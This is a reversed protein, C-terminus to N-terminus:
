IFRHGFWINERATRQLSLETEYLESGQPAASVALKILKASQLLHLDGMTNGSCLLPAIGETIQLLRKPKGERWTIMGKIEDSVIGDICKTEVGIVDDYHIGLLEAFPEVAWKISATVVFVRIGKSKLWEILKLQQPFIPWQKQAVLCNKAWHRVQELRQGKNIQALWLYAAHVDREKWEHYHAWPDPPLGSLNCHEIQYKFFTEGADVDWLTGDADFAAYHPSVNNNIFKDVESQIVKWIEKDFEKYSKM